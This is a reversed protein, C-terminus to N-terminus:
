INVKKHVIFMPVRTGDKSSYFVQKTEYELPNLNGVKTEHFVKLFILILEFNKFTYNISVTTEIKPKTFDVRYIKNPTLFSFFEYFMETHDRKGTMSTITGLDISFDMVKEGTELKHLSM